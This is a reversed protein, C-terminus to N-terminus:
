RDSGFFGDATTLVPTPELVGRVAVGQRMSGLPIMESHGDAFYVFSRPRSADEGGVHNRRLLLGKSSPLAISVLRQPALDKVSQRSDSRFFSPQAFATYTLTDLAVANFSRTEVDWEPSVEPGQRALAGNYGRQELHWWWFHPQGWYAGDPDLTGIGDQNENRPSFDIPARLTGRIGYYPFVGSNDNVYRDLELGVNRQHVLVATELATLKATRLVPVSISLLVGIVSIAVLVELITFAFRSERSLANEAM